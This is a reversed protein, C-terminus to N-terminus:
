RFVTCNIHTDDSYNYVEKFVRYAIEIAQEASELKENFSEFVEDTQEDECGCHCHEDHEHEEDCCCDEDGCCCDDEEPEIERKTIGYEAMLKEAKELEEQTLAVVPLDLQIGYGEDYTFQIFKDANPEELVTFWDDGKNTTLLDIAAKIRTKLM